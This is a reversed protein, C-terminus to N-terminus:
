NTLCLDGCMNWASFGSLLVKVYNGQLSRTQGHKPRDTNTDPRMGSFYREQWWQKEAKSSFKIKVRRQWAFVFLSQICMNIYKAYVYAWLQISFLQTKIFPLDYRNNYNRQEIKELHRINIHALTYTINFMFMPELCVWNRHGDHRNRQWCLLVICSVMNCDFISYVLM